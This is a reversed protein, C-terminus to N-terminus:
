WSIVHKLYIQGDDLPQHILDCCMPDQLHIPFKHLDRQVKVTTVLV